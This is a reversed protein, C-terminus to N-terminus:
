TFFNRRDAIIGKIIATFQIVDGNWLADSGDTIFGKALANMKFRKRETLITLINLRINLRDAIIGKIIANLQLTDGNWLADSGDAIIGKSLAMVQLRKGDLVSGCRYPM